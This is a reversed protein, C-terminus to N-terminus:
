FAETVSMSLTHGSRGFGLDIRYNIRNKKDLKFRLGAGAAPLLEDFRLDKWRQAVGGVGAFGVLGFRYPLEARYEAQSAFMRQDQFKGATYGRLDSSAGYLCLDYFPSKDSVSCLSTRYALVHGKRMTKYGNYDARYTQYTRNSGISKGFFDAKINWFSGKTPYFTNDRLDRQVHFGLSATTSTLDIPPIIFGGPVPEGGGVHVSLKRYQYRPGVFINKGVNRMFEGFVVGGSQHLTVFVEPQGPRQGIGYFDYVARGKGMAFAAQYKNEAFYLRGGLVAGRTGSNTFAFALAVTSPPSIEDEERLRFVYGLGLIMGAGFTPSKIPIPIPIITGRKKKPPDAAKKTKGKVDSTDLQQDPSPDPKQGLTSPATLTLATLICALTALVGVPNCRGLKRVPDLTIKIRIAM